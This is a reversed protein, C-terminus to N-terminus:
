HLRADAYQAAMQRRLAKFERERQDTIEFAFDDATWGDYYCRIAEDLETTSLEPKLHKEVLALWRSFRMTLM